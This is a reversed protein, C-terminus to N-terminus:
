HLEFKIGKPYPYDFMSITSHLNFNPSHEFKLTKLCTRYILSLLHLRPM